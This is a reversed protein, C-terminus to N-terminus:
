LTYGSVPRCHSLQSNDYHWCSGREGCKEGWLLCARDIVTGFTVLGPISGFIRVMIMQLGLAFSRQSHPVCRLTAIRGPVENMFTFFSAIVILLIFYLESNCGNPCKGPVAMYSTGNLYTASNSVSICTCLDYVREGELTYTQMCGAYCASYYTINDIGCVPDYLYSCSCNERCFGLNNSFTSVNSTNDLHSVDFTPNECPLLFATTTLVSILAAVLCLRIRGHRKINLWKLLLGGTLVGLVGSPILVAGVLTGATSSTEGFQSELYKPLFTALGKVIFVECCGAFCLFMYVPNLLLIKLASPIDRFSTGFGPRSAKEEGGDQHTESIFELRDAGPLKRPYGLLPIAILWLLLASLLFGIWWAGVWLPSDETIHLDNLDVQGIDTYLHLFQGGVVFGVAPGLVATSEFIGLYVPYRKPQVNEDLFTIGLTYIPTGGFGHLFQAVVFMGMYIINMGSSGDHCDDSHGRDPDCTDSSTTNYNSHYLGATFHPLAFLFSGLGMIFASYGLWKPKHGHGGIYTVPILVILVAIAYSSVIIGSGVSPLDFQRELSTVSTSILGNIVMSQVMAFGCLFLLFFEGKNFVQLCNPSFCGWGCRNEVEPTLDASDKNTFSSIEDNDTCSTDVAREDRNDTDRRSWMQTETDASIDNKLRMLTPSGGHCEALNNLYLKGDVGGNSTDCSTM